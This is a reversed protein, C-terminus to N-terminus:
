SSGNEEREMDSILASLGDKITDLEIEHGPISLPEIDGYARKLYDTATPLRYLVMEERHVKVRKKALKGDHVMFAITSSMVNYRVGFIDALSKNRTWPNDRTKFWEIIDQATVTKKKGETTQVTATPTIQETVTEEEAPDTPLEPFPMYIM